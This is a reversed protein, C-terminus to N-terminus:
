VRMTVCQICPFLDYNENKCRYFSLERCSSWALVNFIQYHRWLSYYLYDSCFCPLMFFFLYMSICLLLLFCYVHTISAKFIGKIWKFDGRALVFIFWNPQPHNNSIVDGTWCVRQMGKLLGSWSITGIRKSFVLAPFNPSYIIIEENGRVAKYPPTHICLTVFVGCILCVIQVYLLLYLFLLPVLLTFTVRGWRQM